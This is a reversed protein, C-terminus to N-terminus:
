YDTKHLTRNPHRDRQSKMSWAAAELFCRKYLQSLAETNSDNNEVVKDHIRQELKDCNNWWRQMLEMVTDVNLPESSSLEKVSLEDLPLKAARINLLDEARRRSRGETIRRDILM